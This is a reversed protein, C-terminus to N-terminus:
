AQAADGEMEGLEVDGREERALAAEDGGDKHRPEGAAADYEVDQLGDELRRAACLSHPLGSSGYTFQHHVVKTKLRGAWRGGHSVRGTPLRCPTLAM